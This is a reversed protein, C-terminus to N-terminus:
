WTALINKTKIDYTMSCLSGVNPMLYFETVIDEKKGVLNLDMKVCYAVVSFDKLDTRVEVIWNEEYDFVIGGGEFNKWLWHLYQFNVYDWYVNDALIM